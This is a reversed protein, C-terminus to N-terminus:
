FAGHLRLGFVHAPGRDRNYGPNAIFQYDATLNVGKMAQLDYYTEAIWEAGPHPLKGDGVLIGLGGDNLYTQRTRSIGNALGALGIRDDARGWSAGKLQAGVALTRDIDTFDYAELTGDALGARVFVGLNASLEQEANIHWGLRTQRRRLGSSDPLTGTSNYAGIADGLKLFNGHNAWFAMRVAGAHGGLTHRHEIEGVVQYQSFNTELSPENPLKSLNFLGTRLTWAGQYWEAAGGFTFGWANAAYDVTGTDIIAWNMFDARPDHAYANTDFVDGVSFKGLTIILRNASQRGALQNAASEVVASEGGLNITQRLFARPLKFYPATKGVKYAEGSPFGAVGLTNSLGFGQDVEANAWLEAGRWLRAGVFATADATEQTDHPKLSNAGAYPAAFGLVTQGTFTAQGHLAFTQSSSATEALPAAPAIEVNGPLPAAADGADSALAPGSPAFTAAAVILAAALARIRM